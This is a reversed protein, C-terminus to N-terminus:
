SVALMAGVPWEASCPLAGREEWWHVRPLMMNEGVIRNPSEEGQGEKGRQVRGRGQGHGEKESLWVELFFISVVLSFRTDLGRGGEWHSFPATM